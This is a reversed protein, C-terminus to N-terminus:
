GASSGARPPVPGSVRVVRATVGVEALLVDGGVHPDVEVSAAVGIRHDEVRRRERAPRAPAHREVAPVGWRSSVHAAPPRPAVPDRDIGIRLRRGIRVECQKVVLVRERDVVGTTPVALDANHDPAPREILRCDLRLPRLADDALARGIATAAPGVAGARNRWGRLPQHDAHVHDGVRAIRLREVGDPELVEGAQEVSAAGVRHLERLRGVATLRPEAGTVTERNRGSGFVKGRCDNRM